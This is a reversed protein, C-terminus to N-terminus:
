QTPRGAKNPQRQRLASCRGVTAARLQAGNTGAATLPVLSARANELGSAVAAAKEGVHALGHADLDHHPAAREASCFGRITGVYARFDVFSRVGDFDVVRGASHLLGLRESEIM